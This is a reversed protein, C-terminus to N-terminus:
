LAQPYPAFRRNFGAARAAIQAAREAPTVVTTGPPLVSALDALSVVQSRVTPKAVATLDIRQFRIAM